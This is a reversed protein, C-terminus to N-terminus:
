GRTNSAHASTSEAEGPRVRARARRRRERKTATREEDRYRAAADCTDYSYSHAPWLQQSKSLWNSVSRQLTRNPESQPASNVNDSEIENGRREPPCGLATRAGMDPTGDRQGPSSSAHLAGRPQRHCASILWLVHASRPTLFAAIFYNQFRSFLNRSQLIANRSQSLNAM